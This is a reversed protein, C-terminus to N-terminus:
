PKKHSFPLSRKPFTARCIECKIGYCQQAQCFERGWFIIQLHLKNWLSQPFIKKLDKETEVVNKGKTLGWRQALRHIHTDVPFAPQGFGQSIVVSATKHGVGPLQELAKIDAPVEGEFSSLLIHSLEYIAKSKKPGLGCPKIISYITDPSLQSMDKPNDALKFLKPTVKNVREDTCQASLLVAVLLTFHDKHELPVPTKPYYKELTTSVILARDAKKM